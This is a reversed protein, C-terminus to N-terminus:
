SNLLKFDKPIVIDKLLKDFFVYSDYQSGIKQNYFFSNVEMKMKSTYHWQVCMFFTPMFPFILGLKTKKLNKHKYEYEVLGRIQKDIFDACQTALIIEYGLHRHVTLFSCWGSRDKNAWDRSNFKLQAEDIIILTQNEKGKIHNIKAYILLYDVNLDKDNMLIFKGSEQPAVPFNSIVNKGRKLYELIVKTCHYSKGGGPTGTYLSISM